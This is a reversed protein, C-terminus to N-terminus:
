RVGGEPGIRPLDVQLQRGSEVLAGYASSLAILAGTLDGADADLVRRLLDHATALTQYAELTPTWRRRVEVLTAREEPTAPTGARAGSELCRGSGEDDPQWRGERGIAAMQAYCYRSLLTRGGENAAVAVAQAARRAPDRVQAGCGSWAVWVPLALLLRSIRHVKFM